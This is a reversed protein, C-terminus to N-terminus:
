GIENRGQRAKDALEIQKRCPPLAPQVPQDDEAREGAHDREVVVQDDGELDINAVGFIVATEGDGAGESEGDRDADDAREDDTDIGPGPDLHPMAGGDGRETRRRSGGGDEGTHGSMEDTPADTRSSCYSCIM